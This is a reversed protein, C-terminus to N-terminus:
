LGVNSSGSQLVIGKQLSVQIQMEMQPLPLPLNSGEAEGAQLGRAQHLALLLHVPLFIGVPFIRNEVPHM